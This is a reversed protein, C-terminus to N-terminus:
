INFFDEHTCKLALIFKDLYDMTINIEGNEIRWVYQRDIFLLDALQSQTLKREERKAKIIKGIIKKSIRTTVDVPKVRKLKTIKKVILPPLSLM